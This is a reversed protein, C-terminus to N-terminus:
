VASKRSGTGGEILTMSHKSPPNGHVLMNNDDFKYTEKCGLLTEYDWKLEPCGDRVYEDLEVWAETFQVDSMNKVAYIQDCKQTFTYKEYQEALLERLGNCADRLIYWDQELKPIYDTSAVHRIFSFFTFYSYVTMNLLKVDYQKQVEDNWGVGNHQVDQMYKLINLSGDMTYGSLMFGYHPDIRSQSDTNPYWLYMLQDDSILIGAYEQDNDLAHFFCSMWYYDEAHRSQAENFRVNHKEIFKRSYLKANVWIRNQGTIIHSHQDDFELLPASVIAVPKSGPRKKPKGTQADMEISNDEHIICADAEVAGVFQSIAIGTAIQDDEDMMMFYERSTHDIGYQRALGQGGNKPTRICRIDLYPGYKDVLGKYDDKTNPSCDNVLTVHIFERHWQTALSMLGREIVEPKGYCPIIFDIDFM